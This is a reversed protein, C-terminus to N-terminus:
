KGRVYINVGMSGTFELETSMQNNKIFNLIEVPSIGSKNLVGKTAFYDMNSYLWYRLANTSKKFQPANVTKPMYRARNRGNNREYYSLAMLIKWMMNTFQRNEKMKYITSGAQKTAGSYVLIRSTRKVNKSVNSMETSSLLIDLTDESRGPPNGSLIKITHVTQEIAIIWIFYSVLKLAPPIFKKCLQVYQTAMDKQMDKISPIKPIAVSIIHKQALSSMETCMSILENYKKKYEENSMKSADYKMIGYAKRFMDMIAKKDVACASARKEIYDFTKSNLNDEIKKSMSSIQKMIEDYLLQGAYQGFAEIVIKNDLGPKKGGGYRMEYYADNKANQIEDDSISRIKNNAIGVSSVWKGKIIPM